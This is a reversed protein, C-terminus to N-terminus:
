GASKVVQIVKRGQPTDVVLIYWGPTLRATPITIEGDAPWGETQDLVLRGGTSYLRVRCAGSPANPQYIRLTEGFPNTRVVVASSGADPAPASTSEGPPSNYNIIIDIVISSGQGTVESNDACVASVVCRYTAGSTLGSIGASLGFALFDAVPAGEPLPSVRVRYGYAGSVSAWNLTASSPSTITSNLSAPAALSCPDQGSIITFPNAAPLLLSAFLFAAALAQRHLTLNQM